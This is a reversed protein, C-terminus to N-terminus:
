RIQWRRKWRLSSRHLRVLSVCWNVLKAPFVFKSHINCCCLFTVSFTSGRISVRVSKLVAAATTLIPITENLPICSLIKRHKETGRSRLEITLIPWMFRSDPIGESFLEEGYAFSTEFDNEFNCSRAVWQNPFPRRLFFISSDMWCPRPLFNSEWRSIKHYRLRLMLSDTRESIIVLKM